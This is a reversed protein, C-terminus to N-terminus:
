VKRAIVVLRGNDVSYECTSLMLFCNGYELQNGTDYIQNKKVFKELERFEEMSNYNRFWYYRFGEEDEQKVATKM